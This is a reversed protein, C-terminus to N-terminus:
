QVSSGPEMIEGCRRIFAGFAASTEIKKVQGLSTDLCSVKGFFAKVLIAQNYDSVGPNGITPPGAMPFPVPLCPVARALMRDDTLFTALM